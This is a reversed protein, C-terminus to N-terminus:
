VEAWTMWDDGERQVGWATAVDEVLLRGWEAEAGASAACSPTAAPTSIVEVHAAVPMDFRCLHVERVRSGHRQADTVLEDVLLLLDTLRAPSLDAFIRATLRRAEVGVLGDSPLDDCSPRLTVIAPPAHGM